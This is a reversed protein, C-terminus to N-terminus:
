TINITPSIISSDYLEFEGIQAAGVFFRLYRWFRLDSSSTFGWNDNDITPSQNETLLTWNATNILTAQEWSPVPLTNAGYIRVASLASAGNSVFYGLTGPRIKNVGFDFFFYTVPYPLGFVSRDLLLEAGSEPASSKGLMKGPIPNSYATTNNSTGILYLLGSPVSVGPTVAYAGSNYQYGTVATDDDVITLIVPSPTTLLYTPDPALTIVITEDPEVLSDPVSTIVMSAATQGAAILISGSSAGFTTAGAVTYDANFIATGGVAFNIALSDSTSGDRTFTYTASAM